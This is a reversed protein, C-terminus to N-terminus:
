DPRQFAAELATQVEHHVSLDLECWEAESLLAPVLYHYLKDLPDRTREEELFEQSKYAQTDQGSHGSLRPVMLRLLAPGRGSRVQGVVEKILAAAEAPDTGDGDRGYLNTFSRLSQAIDGGPPQLGGPVPLSHGPAIIPAPPMTPTPSCRAWFCRASTM